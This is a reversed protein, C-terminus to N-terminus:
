EKNRELTASFAWEGADDFGSGGNCLCRENPHVPGGDLEHCICGCSEIENAKLTALERTLRIIRPGPDDGKAFIDAPYWHDLFAELGAWTAPFSDDLKEQLLDREARVESLKATLEIYASLPVSSQRPGSCQACDLVPRGHVCQNPVFTM